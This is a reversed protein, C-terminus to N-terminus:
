MLACPGDSWCGEYARDDGTDTQALNLDQHECASTDFANSLARINPYLRALHQLEADPIPRRNSAQQDRLKLFELRKEITWGFVGSDPFETQAARASRFIVTSKGQNLMRFYQAVKAFKTIVFVINGNAHAQTMVADFFEHALGLDLMKFNDELGEINVDEFVIVPLGGARIYGGSTNLDQKLFDELGPVSKWGSRKSDMDALKPSVLELLKAALLDPTILSALRQCEGGIARNVLKNYYADGSRFSSNDGGFWIGFKPARGHIMILLSLLAQSKGMGPDDFVTFIGGRDGLNQATYITSCKDLYWNHIVEVAVSNVLQSGMTRSSNFFLRGGTEQARKIAGEIVGLAVNRKEDDNMDRADEIEKLKNSLWGQIGAAAVILALEGLLLGLEFAM